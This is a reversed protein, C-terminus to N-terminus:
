AMNLMLFTVKMSSTSKSFTQVGIMRRVAGQRTSELSARTSGQEMPPTPTHQM